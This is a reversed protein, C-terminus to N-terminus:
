PGTDRVATCGQTQENIFQYHTSDSIDTWKALASSVSAQRDCTGSVTVSPPSQYPHTLYSSTKAPMGYDSEHIKLNQIYSLNYFKDIVVDGYVDPSTYYEGTSFTGITDDSNEAAYEATYSTSSVPLVYRSQIAAIRNFEQGFVSDEFSGASEYVLVQPPSDQSYGDGGSIVNISVVGSPMLTSTLNVTLIAGSGKGDHVIAVPSVYGDGTAQITVGVVRGQSNVVCSALCETAKLWGDKVRFRASTTYGSGQSSFSLGSVVGGGLSAEIVAGSGRDDMLEFVPAADFKFPSLGRGHKTYFSPLTASVTGEYVSYIALNNTSQHTPRQPYSRLGNCTKKTQYYDQVSAHVSGAFRIQPKQVFKWTPLSQPQSIAGGPYQSDATFTIFPNLTGGGKGFFGLVLARSPIMANDERNYKSLDSSYRDGSSNIDIRDIQGEIRSQIVGRIGLVESDYQDQTIAGSSLKSNLASLQQNDGGSITVNPAFQYGSGDATPEAFLISGNITTTGSGGSGLSSVTATATAGSGGGGVFVVKPASDPRYGSGRATLTLKNVVGETDITCVAAAGSGGGGVIRVDPAHKYKQGGSSLSVSAVTAVPSFSFTPSSRYKGGSVLSVSDVSMSLFAAAKATGGLISVTPPSSYGNGSSSLSLTSVYWDLSSFGRATTAGKNEEPPAEISIKPPSTYGQGGNTVTFSSVSYLKTIRNLAMNAVVVAGSGGGGTITVAPPSDYGGGGSLVTVAFVRGLVTATASAGSGDGSILVTPPTSRYGSGGDALVVSSVFGRATAVGQAPFGPTSFVVKPVAAYGGGGNNLTLSDVAGSIVCRASAGSGGGGSLSLTPASRYGSGANEVGLSVVKGNIHPDVSAMESSPQSMSIVPPLRYNKGADNVLLEVSLYARPTELTKSYELKYLDRSQSRALHKKISSIGKQHRSPALVAPNQFQQLGQSTVAYQANADTAIKSYANIDNSVKFPSNYGVGSYYSAFPGGTNGGLYNDNFSNGIGIPERCPVLKATAGSGSGSMTVISVSPITVFLNDPANITINPSLYVGGGRFSVPYNYPNITVNTYTADIVKPEYSDLVHCKLKKIANFKFTEKEVDPDPDPNNVTNGLAQDLTGFGVIGGLHVEIRRPPKGRYANYQASQATGVSSVKRIFYGSGPYARFDIVSYNLAETELSQQEASSTQTYENKVEFTQGGSLRIEVSDGPKYGSGPNTIIVRWSRYPSVQITNTWGSSENEVTKKPPLLYTTKFTDSRTKGFSGAYYFHSWRVLTVEQERTDTGWEWVVDAEYRFCKVEVRENEATESFIHAISHAIATSGVNQIRWVEGSKSVAMLMGDDVFLRSCEGPAHLTCDVEPGLDPTSTYCSGVFVSRGVGDPFISPLIKDRSYAYPVFHQYAGETSGPTPASPISQINDFTYLGRTMGIYQSWLPFKGGKADPSPWARANSYGGTLGTKSDRSRAFALPHYLSQQPRLDGNAFIGGATHPSLGQMVAQSRPLFIEVDSYYQDPDYFSRWNIVTDAKKLKISLPFGVKMPEVSCSYQWSDLRGVAGAVFGWRMPWGDSKLGASGSLSAYQDGVAVVSRWDSDSGIQVPSTVYTTVYAQPEFTYGSGSQSVSCTMKGNASISASVAGGTGNGNLITTVSPFTRAPDVSKVFLNRCEEKVNFKNPLWEPPHRRYGSIGNSNTDGAGYNDIATWYYGYFGAAKGWPVYSEAPTTGPTSTVYDTVYDPVYVDYGSIVKHGVEREVFPLTDQAASDCTFITTNDFRDAVSWSGSSNVFNAEGNEVFIPQFTRGKVWDSGVPILGEAQYSVSFSPFLVRVVFQQTRGYIPADLSVRWRAIEKGDFAYLPDYSVTLPIDAGECSVISATVASQSLISIVASSTVDVDPMQKGSPQSSSLGSLDRTVYFPSFDLKGSYTTYTYFSNFDKISSLGSPFLDVTAIDVSPESAFGLRVKIRDSESHTYGSGGNTLKLDVSDAVMVATASAPVTPNGGEFTIVPTATYGTGGSTVSVSLVRGVFVTPTAEAGSGPGSFTITPPSDYYAGRVPTLSTVVGNVVSCTASASEGDANASFTVTTGANYGSGGGVITAAGSIYFSCRATLICSDPTAVVKPVSQYGSGSNKLTISQVALSATCTATAGSGPDSQNPKVFSVSTPSSRISSLQSENLTISKISSSILVRPTETYAPGSKNNGLQCNVNEGWAWLTGDAKIALTHTDCTSVYRWRETGIRHPHYRSELTGDGLPAKGWGWLSGDALIGYGRKWSTAVFIWDSQKPITTGGTGLLPPWDNGGVSQQGYGLGLQDLM